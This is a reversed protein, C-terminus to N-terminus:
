LAIKPTPKGKCLGYGYLKYLYTVEMKPAQFTQHYMPSIVRTVWKNEAMQQNTPKNCKGLVLM